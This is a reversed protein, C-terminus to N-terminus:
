KVLYHIGWALIGVTITFGLLNGWVINLWDMTGWPVRQSSGDTVNIYTTSGVNDVRKWIDTENINYTQTTM